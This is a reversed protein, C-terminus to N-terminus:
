WFDPIYAMVNNKPDIGDPEGICAATNDPATESCCVPYDTEDQTVSFDGNYFVCDGTTANGCCAACTTGCVFSSGGCTTSDGGANLDAAKTM